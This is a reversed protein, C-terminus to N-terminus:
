KTLTYINKRIGDMKAVCKHVRPIGCVSMCKFFGTQNM